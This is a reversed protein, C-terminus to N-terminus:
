MVDVAGLKEALWQAGDHFVEKSTGHGDRGISPGIILEVQPSRIKSDFAAQSLKEIFEFCHRTGVRTDLNGIYFRVHRDGLEDVLNELSLSVVLPLESIEQFEKAFSLKTLPSFGLVWRFHPIAAATHAAIFAGRSLGAVALKEPILAGLAELAAVARKVKEIFLSIPNSGKAIESAWINLAQTPPLNNEHGPLTMSFIRMPLSSLYDVPQNFPDLKLSDQASLSFYFLAPLPGSSLHPGIYAIEVDPSADFHHVSSTDTM